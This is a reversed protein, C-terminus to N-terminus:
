EGKGAKFAQYDSITKEATTKQKSGVVGYGLDHQLIVHSYQKLAKELKEVQEIPVLGYQMPNSLIEKYVFEADYLSYTWAPKDRNGHPVSENIILKELNSPLNM